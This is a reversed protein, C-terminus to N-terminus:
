KRCVALPFLHFLFPDDYRTQQQEGREAGTGGRGLRRGRNSDVARHAHLCDIREHCLQVIVIDKGVLGPLDARDQVLALALALVIPDRIAFLQCFLQRGINGVDKMVLMYEHSEVGPQHLGLTVDPRAGRRQGLPFADRGRLRALTDERGVEPHFFDIVQAGPDAVEVQGADRRRIM